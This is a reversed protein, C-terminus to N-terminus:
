KRGLKWRYLAGAFYVVACGLSIASALSGVGLGADDTAVSILTLMALVVLMVASLIGSWPTDPSPRRRYRLVGLVLVLLSLLLILKGALSDAVPV